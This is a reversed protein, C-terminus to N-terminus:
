SRTELAQIRDDLHVLAEIIRITLQTGPDRGFYRGTSKPLANLADFVREIEPSMAM